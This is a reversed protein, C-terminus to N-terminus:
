PSLVSNSDAVMFLGFNNSDSFKVTHHAFTVYSKILPPIWVVNKKKEGHFCINHTSM